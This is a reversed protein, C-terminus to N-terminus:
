IFFYQCRLAPEMTGTSSRPKFGLAWLVSYLLWYCWNWPIQHGRRAETPVAHMHHACVCVCVCVCDYVYFTKFIFIQKFSWSFTKLISTLVFRMLPQTSSATPLIYCGKFLPVDFLWPLGAPLWVGWLPTNEIRHWSSRRSARWWWLLEPQPQLTARLLESSRDGTFTLVEESVPWCRTLEWM